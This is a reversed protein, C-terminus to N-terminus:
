GREKDALARIKQKIKETINDIMPQILAAFAEDFSLLKGCTLCKTGDTNEFRSTFKHHKCEKV